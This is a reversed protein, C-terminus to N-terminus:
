QTNSIKAQLYGYLKSNYYHQAFSDGEIHYEKVEVPDISPLGISPIGVFYHVTLVIHSM